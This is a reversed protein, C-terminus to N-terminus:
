CGGFFLKLTVRVARGTLWTPMNRVCMNCAQSTSCRSSCCNTRTVSCSWSMCLQVAPVEPGAQSWERSPLPLTWLFPCLIPLVAPACPGTGAFGLLPPQRSLPGLLCSILALGLVQPVQGSAFASDGVPLSPGCSVRGCLRRAPPLSLPAAGQVQQPGSLLCSKIQSIHRTGLAAQLIHLLPLFGPGAGGPLAATM